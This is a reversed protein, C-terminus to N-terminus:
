SVKIGSSGSKKVMLLSEIAVLKDEDEKLIQVIERLRPPIEYEAGTMLYEMSVGLKRSMDLLNNARPFTGRRRWKAYADKTLDCSLM